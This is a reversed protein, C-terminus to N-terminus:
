SVQIFWLLIGSLVAALCLHALPPKVRPCPTGACMLPLIGPLFPIALFSVACPSVLTLGAAAWSAIRLSRTTPMALPVAAVVVFALCIAWIIWMRPSPDMGWDFTLKWAVVVAVPAAWAIALGVMARDAVTPRNFNPSLFWDDQVHEVVV